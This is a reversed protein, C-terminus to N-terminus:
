KKKNKHYEQYYIQEHFYIPKNNDSLSSKLLRSIADSM